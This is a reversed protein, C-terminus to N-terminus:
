DEDALSGCLCDPNEENGQGSACLPHSCGWLEADETGCICAVESAEQNQEKNCAGLGALCALILITGFSKM